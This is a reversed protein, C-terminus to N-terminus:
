AGAGPWFCDWVAGPPHTIGGFTGGGRFARVIPLSQAFGEHVRVRRPWDALGAGANCPAVHWTPAQRGLWEGGLAVVRDVAAYFRDTRLLEQGSAIDLMKRACIRRWASCARVMVM